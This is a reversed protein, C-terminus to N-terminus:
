SIREATLNGHEIDEEDCYEEYYKIAEKTNHAEYLAVRKSGDYVVYDKLM